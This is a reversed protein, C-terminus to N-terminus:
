ETPHDPRKKRNARMFDPLGWHWSNTKSEDVLYGSKRFMSEWESIPHYNHPNVGKPQQNFADDMKGVIWRKFKAGRQFDEPITDEMILCKGGPKLVRRAESLIEEQNNTHHLIDMLCVVDLSSDAVPIRRANARAFKNDKTDPTRLDGLDFKFVKAGTHEEIYKAVHGTGVGLYL